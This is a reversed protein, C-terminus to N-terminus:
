LEIFTDRGLQLYTFRVTGDPNRVTFAETAGLKDRYFAVAADYDHTRIGIHNLGRRSRDQALAVQLLLAGAAMGGLFLTSSKVAVEGARRAAMRTSQSGQARIRVDCAAATLKGATVRLSVIGRM